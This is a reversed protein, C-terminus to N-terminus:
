THPFVTHVQCALAIIYISTRFRFQKIRPNYGYLYSYAAFYVCPISPKSPFSYPTTRYYKKPAQVCLSKNASCPPSVSCILVDVELVVHSYRCIM